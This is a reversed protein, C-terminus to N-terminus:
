NASVSELFRSEFETGVLGSLLYDIVDSAAYETRGQTFRLISELDDGSTLLPREVEGGDRLQGYGIDAMLANCLCKRGVTDELAGGKSVYTDVPEAPCRYGIRGNEMRYATRLYGLDCVRERSLYVSESSVTGELQVVKFPFGTPSARLDTHVRVPETRSRVLVRERNAATVGSENSYAFLTGVQVGAAGAELAERLKEPAGAGGALWFPLGLERMRALDVVDREGYVPQGTADVQLEGRPPANHGGATPGEIVFGDVKGNAKRALMTALSNSSIIPLFYPRRLVPPEAETWHEQPDLTIYEVEDRGLGDVELKLSAARHEAFRDLVGPIEKPIGAGMLVYDVGGLMAGYLSDLNPLQVKTLLNIGVKGDHGEKALWVECFNAIMTLQHRVRSVVQKYMPVPRYAVGEARGEPLFYRKLVDAAVGPIPFHEMARRMHGGIDGDQLRRVFLSDLATGSVVGLQGRLAVARALVWDSVGVGM